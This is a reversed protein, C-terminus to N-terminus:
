VPMRKLGNLLYDDHFYKELFLELNKYMIKNVIEEPTYDFMLRKFEKKTFAPYHDTKGYARYTPLSHLFQFIHTSLTSFDSLEQYESFASIMGDFDSGITILDWADKSDCVRIVHFIHAMFLKIAEDRKKDPDDQFDIFRQRAISGALREKINDIRQDDSLNQLGNVAAHSCIVPINDENELYNEGLLTYLDRRARSSMHKIDPLIRRGNERSFLLKLVDKGLNTICENLGFNQNVAFTRMAGEYSRAHGCLLNWFHHTITIFLPCHKGRNWKKIKSINETYQKLFDIYASSERKSVSSVPINTLDSYSDYRVLSHMGEITLIGAITDSSQDVVKKYEDFNSVLKFDFGGHNNNTQKKVYDYQGCLENFYDIKSNNKKIDFYKQIISIDFCSMCSGLAIQKNKNILFELFDRLDFLNVEPPYLSLILGRTRLTGDHICKNFNSQSFKTLKKTASKFCGKLESCAESKQILEWINKEAIQYYPKLMPHVHIDTLYKPEM